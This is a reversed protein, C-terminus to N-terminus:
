LWTPQTRTSKTLGPSIRNPHHVKLLVANVVHIGDLDVGVGGGESAIDERGM